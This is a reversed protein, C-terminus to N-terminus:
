LVTYEAAIRAIEDGGSWPEKTIGIRGSFDTKIIEEVTGVQDTKVVLTALGNKSILSVFGGEDLRESFINRARWDTTAYTREASFENGTLLYKLRITTTEM